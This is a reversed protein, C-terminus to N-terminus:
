KEIMVAPLAKQLRAIGADTVKTNFVRLIGLTPLRELQELTEDTFGEGLLVVGLVVDQGRQDTGVLGGRQLVERIPKYKTEQEATLSKELAKRFLADRDFPGSECRQKLRAIEHVVEAFKKEDNKIRPIKAMREDIGNLLREIDGRGGLELKKKQAETLVCVHDIIQIEHKLIKEFRGRVAHATPTRTTVVLESGGVYADLGFPGLLRDLCEQFPAGDLKMTVPSDLQVQAKALAVEDVRISIGHYEKLYTLGDELGLDLFDVSTPKPLSRFIREEGPNLLPLPLPPRAEVEEACIPRTLLGAACAIALLLPRRCISWGESVCLM